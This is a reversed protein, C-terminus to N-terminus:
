LTFAKTEMKVLYKSVGGGTLLFDIIFQFDTIPWNSCLLAATGFRGVRYM